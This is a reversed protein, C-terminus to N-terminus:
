YRSTVPVPCHVGTASRFTASRVKPEATIYAGPFIRYAPPPSGGVDDASTISRLGFWPAGAQRVTGLMAKARRWIFAVMRASPLTSTVPPVLPGPNLSWAPATLTASSHFGLVSIHVLM